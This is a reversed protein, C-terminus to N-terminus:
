GQVTKIKHHIYRSHQNSQIDIIELDDVDPSTTLYKQTFRGLPQAAVVALTTALLVRPINETRNRGRFTLLAAIGAFIGAVALNTGCLPSVALSSEGRKLRSLGEEAAKLVEDRPVNGYIHFGDPSSRGMLRTNIGTKQILVAITAHELAHNKRIKTIVNQEDMTM